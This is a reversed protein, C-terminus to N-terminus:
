RRMFTHSTQSTQSTCCRRKTPKWAVWWTWRGWTLCQRLELLIKHLHRLQLPQDFITSFTMVKHSVKQRKGSPTLIYNCPSNINIMPWSLLASTVTRSQRLKYNPQQFALLFFTHLFLFLHLLKSRPFLSNAVSHSESFMPFGCSGLMM